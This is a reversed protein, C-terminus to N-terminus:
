QKMRRFLASLITCLRGSYRTRRHYRFNCLPCTQDSDTPTPIKAGRPWWDRQASSFDSKRPNHIVFLSCFEATPICSRVSRTSNHAICCMVQFKGNTCGLVYGEFNSRQSPRMCEGRADESRPAVPGSRERM